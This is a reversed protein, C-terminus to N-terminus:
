AKVQLDERTAIRLKKDKRDFLYVSDSLKEGANGGNVLQIVVQWDELTCENARSPLLVLNHISGPLIILDDNCSDAIQELLHDYIMSVAGYQVQENSLAYVSNDSESHSRIYDLMEEVTDGIFMAAVNGGTIGIKQILPPCLIPTNVKAAELLDDLTVGWTYLDDNTITRSYSEAGGEEILLIRFFTVMDYYRIYPIHRLAEENEDGGELAYVIRSKVEDFTEGNLHSGNLIKRKDEYEKLLKSVAIEIGAEHDLWDIEGGNLSTWIGVEEADKKIGVMLTVTEDREPKWPYTVKFEAGLAEELKKKLREKRTEMDM